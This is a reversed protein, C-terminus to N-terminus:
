NTLGMTNVTSCCLLAQQWRWITIIKVRHLFVLGCKFQDGTLGAFKKLGRFDNSQITCSAKVEIGILRNDDQELVIDVESKRKDRFHYINMTEESWSLHKFCEMVVFSEPRGGYYMSALLQEKKKLGFLHCALGTDVMHMQAYRHDATQGQKKCLFSYAQHYVDM